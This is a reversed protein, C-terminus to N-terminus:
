IHPILNFVDNVFIDMPKQCLLWCQNCNRYKNQREKTLSKKWITQLSFKNLNGLFINKGQCLSVRGDPLVMCSNRISLCPIKYNGLRWQNYLSLYRNLPYPKNIPLKPINTEKLVSDFFEPTNYIGLALYVGHEKAFKEAKLIDSKKNNLPNITYNLSVTCIKILDHILSHINDFNDVGRVRKYTEGLGDFSLVVRKIKFDNVTDILKRSLIGNSLLIYNKNKFLKLIEKYQPHLIFEGGSLFYQTGVNDKKLINKIAKISIDQIVPKKWISCIACKSNCRTTSYIGVSTISRNRLSQLYIAGRRIQEATVMLENKM